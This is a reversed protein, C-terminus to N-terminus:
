VKKTYNLSIWGAGSKLKGWTGTKDVITYVGKDEITGVIKYNTGPGSRINLSNATVKVMYSKFSTKLNKYVLELKAKTKPGYIGDIALGNEAQFKRVAALTQKGFDGDAGASGCSYGCAILMKQMTKVAEGKSNIKLSTENGIIAPTSTIPTSLALSGVTLNTATHHDDNLLIDGPLLYQTGNLYKKDTLVDFGIAKYGVRMNGTYTSSLDKLASINLIYGAAKTNAIVGASCDSECATTIKAPDYNAKKLQQWYTDRQDQDYGIKNNLAAKVGLEALTLGVKPNKSYRLVCSWPRNYWTRIQWENETQDGAAGGRYTGREDSGSNSIYHTSTSILYKAFSSKSYMNLLDENEQKKTEVKENAYKNYYTMGYSARLEQVKTSRDYPIEYKLLVMDSAERVSKASLLTNWVEEYLKLDIILFDLQMELDGISKKVSRAYELMAKKRTWYTWQALGYGASDKIFNNYTGNDVKSTYQQDTLGLEKNYKDELDGPNLASEAYLNGMLGAVGYKNKINKYLFNWIKEENTTGTLAM